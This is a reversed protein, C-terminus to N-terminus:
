GRAAREARRRPQLQTRYVFARAVGDIHLYVPGEEGAAHVLRIKEAFLVRSSQEQTPLEVHLTGGGVGILGPIRQMPLVLQAAIAPGAVQRSAQVQVAWKNNGQRGPEFSVEGARVYDQPSMIEIALLKEQLLKQRERDLVRVVLPGKLENVRAIPEEFLVKTVGDPELTLSQRSKHLLTAGAAIDVQVQQTRNTLNKVYVYHAQKVKGPRVRIENLTTTPERPDSSVLIQVEQTDSVIPVNVLHHYSRREFRAEVLFGLPPPLGTREAKDKRVAKLPVKHTLTRPEASEALAPLTVSEPAVTLWADGSSVIQLELPGFAGPPVHRAVELMIDANPRKSTLPEVSAIVNLRVYAEPKIPVGHKGAARTYFGRAAIIGPSEFNLGQYDRALYRDFEGLWLERRESDRRRHQMTPSADADDVGVLRDLPPMIWALRERERWDPELHFQGTLDNTAARLAASLKCWAATNNAEKKCRELGQRVPRLRDEAVGALELLALQHRARLRARQPEDEAAPVKIAIIPTVRLADNDQRDLALTEDSLRRSLAWTAQWLAGREEASVIPAAVSLIAEAMQRTSADAGPARCQRELKILADKAFPAHLAQRNQQLARAHKDAADLQATLREVREHWTKRPDPSGKMANALARAAAAAKEWHPRLEPLTELASSFWPLEALAEDLKQECDRWKENVRIVRDFQQAATTLAQKAEDLNSYGRTWLRLEGGHRMLAPQELLEVYGSAYPTQRQAKEGLETARLLTEILDRPWATVEVRTALDALLRLRLAEGSNPLTQPNPHLLRDSIRLTGPDLRPDALAKAFVAADRDAPAFSALLEGARLGGVSFAELRANDVFKAVLTRLQEDIPGADAQTTPVAFDSAMKQLANQLRECEPLWQKRLTKESHGLRWAQELALLMAQQQQFLRPALRYRGSQYAADRTKWADLLWDPYARAAQAPATEPPASVDVAALVFDGGSGLLVPTQKEGRNHWTWREVRAQM